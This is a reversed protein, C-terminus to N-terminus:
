GYVCGKKFLFSGFCTLLRTGRGQTRDFLVVCPLDYALGFDWPLESYEGLCSMVNISVPCLLNFFSCNERFLQSSEAKGTSSEMCWLQTYHTM